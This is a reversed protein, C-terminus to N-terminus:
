HESVVKDIYDGVMAAHDTATINQQLIHQATQMSLRVAEARLEHRATKIEQAMRKRADEQMKEASKQAALIIREKEALGQRRIMEAMAQIEETAEELKANYEAFRKEAQEKALALDALATKVETQRGLFFAKVKAALLWYFIGALVVFNFARWAFNHWNKGAATEGGTSAYGVHIGLVAILVPCLIFFCSAVKRMKLFWAQKGLLNGRM